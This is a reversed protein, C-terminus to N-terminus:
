WDGEVRRGERILRQLKDAEKKSLSGRVSRLAKLNIPRRITLLVESGNGLDAVPEVPRFVGNEFIARVAM